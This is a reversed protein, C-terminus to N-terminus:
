KPPFPRPTNGPKTIEHVHRLAGLVLFTAFMGVAQRFDMGLGDVYPQLIAPAMGEVSNTGAAGIVAGTASHLSSKWLGYTWAMRDSYRRGLQLANTM